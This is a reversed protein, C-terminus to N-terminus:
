EVAIDCVTRPTTPGQRSSAQSEEDDDKPDRELGLLARVHQLRNNVLELQETGRRIQDQLKAQEMELRTREAELLTNLDAM